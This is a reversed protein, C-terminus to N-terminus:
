ATAAREQKLAALEGRLAAVEARLEGCAEALEAITECAVYTDPYQRAARTAKAAIDKFSTM